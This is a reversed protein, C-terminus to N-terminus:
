ADVSVSRSIGSSGGFLESLLGDVSQYANSARQRLLFESLASATVTDSAGDAAGTTSASSSFMGRIMADVDLSDAAGEAAASAPEADPPPPPPMASGSEAAMEERQAKLGASLEGESLVGDGDADLEALQAATVGLEEASLSGDGNADQLNLLTNALKEGLEELYSELISGSNSALSASATVASASATEASSQSDSASATSGSTGGFLGAVMDDLSPRSETASGGQSMSAQLMGLQGSQQMESEMQAQMKERQAALAATLETGSLVGDGDTDFQAIQADTVGLESASLAGSSDADRASVIDASLRSDMEEGYLPSAGGSSLSSSIQM